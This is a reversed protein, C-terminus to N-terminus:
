ERHEIDTGDGQGEAQQYALEAAWTKLQEVYAIRRREQETVEIAGVIGGAVITIITMVLWTYFDLYGLLTAVGAIVLVEAHGMVRRALENGVWMRGFILHLVLTVIGTITALVAILLLEERFFEVTM